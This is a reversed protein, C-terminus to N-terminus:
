TTGYLVERVISEAFPRSPYPGMLGSLGLQFLGDDRQIVQLDTLLEDITFGPVNARREPLTGSTM